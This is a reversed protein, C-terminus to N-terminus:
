YLSWQALQTNYIRTAKAFAKDALDYKGQDNLVKSLSAYAEGNKPDQQIAKKCTQVAADLDGNQHHQAAQQLLAHLQSGSEDRRDWSPQRYEQAGPQLLRDSGAAAVATVVLLLM